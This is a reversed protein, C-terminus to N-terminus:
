ILPESTALHWQAVNSLACVVTPVSEKYRSKFRCPTFESGCGCVTREKLGVDVTFIPPRQSRVDRCDRQSSDFHWKYINGWLLLQRSILPSLENQVVFLHDSGGATITWHVHLSCACFLSLCLLVSSILCSRQRVWQILLRLDFVHRQKKATPKTSPGKLLPFM